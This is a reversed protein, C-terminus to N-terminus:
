DLTEDNETCAADYSIPAIPASTEHITMIRHLKSLYFLKALRSDKVVVIRLVGKHSSLVMNLGVIAGLFMSSITQLRRLDLDWNNIGRDLWPKSFVTLADWNEFTFDSEFDIVVQRNSEFYHVKFLQQEQSDTTDM